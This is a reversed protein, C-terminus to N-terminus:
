KFNTGNAMSPKKFLILYRLDNSMPFFDLQM